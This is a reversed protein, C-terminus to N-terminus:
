REGQQWLYFRTVTGVLFFNTFLAIIISFVQLYVIFEPNFKIILFDSRRNLFNFPLVLLNPLLILFFTTFFNKRFISFSQFIAPFITKHELIIGVQMYAFLCSFLVGLLLLSFDFLFESARSEVLFSLSRSPLYIVAFLVLTQLLWGLFLWGYKSIGKKIGASLYAKEGRFFSAFLFIAAGNLVIGIVGSMILNFRSFIKPFFVFYDPYHLLYDGWFFKFIPFFIWSFVPLNFFYLKLVLILQLLAYILFPLVLLAKRLSKFVEFYLGLFLNIRELTSM